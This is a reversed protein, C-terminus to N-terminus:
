TILFYYAGALALTLLVMIPLSTALFVLGLMWVILAAISITSGSQAVIWVLLLIQVFSLINYLLRRLSIEEPFYVRSSDYVSYFPFRNLGVFRIRKAAAEAKAYNNTWSNRAPVQRAGYLAGLIAALFACGVILATGSTDTLYIAFETSLVYSVLLGIIAGVGGYLAM